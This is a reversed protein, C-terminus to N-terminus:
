INGLKECDRFAYSGITELGEPLTVVQLNEYRSFASDGIETIGEGIVIEQIEEISDEWPADDGIWFVKGQLKWSGVKWHGNFIEM